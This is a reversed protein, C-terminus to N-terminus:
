ILTLRVRRHIGEVFFFPEATAAPEMFQKRKGEVVAEALEELLVHTARCMVRYDQQIAGEAWSCVVSKWDGTCM